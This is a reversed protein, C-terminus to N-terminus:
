QKKEPVDAKATDGTGSLSQGSQDASALKEKNEKQTREQERQNKTKDETIGVKKVEYNKLKRSNTVLLTRHNPDELVVKVPRPKPNPIDDTPKRPKGLRYVKQKSLMTTNVEPTVFQIAKKVQDIDEKSAKESDEEESEPINFMIINNCRADRETKDDMVEAVQTKIKDEIRENTLLKMMLETQQVQIM